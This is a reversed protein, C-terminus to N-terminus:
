FFGWIFSYLDFSSLFCFLFVCIFIYCKETHTYQLLDCFVDCRTFFLFPRRTHSIVTCVCPFIYDVQKICYFNLHNVSPNPPCSFVFVLGSVHDAHRPNSAMQTHGKISWPWCGIFICVSTVNNYLSTYVLIQVIFTTHQTPLICATDFYLLNIRFAFNM